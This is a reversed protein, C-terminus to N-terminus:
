RFVDVDSVFVGRVLLDSFERRMASDDRWFWQIGRSLRFRPMTEELCLIMVRDVDKVM